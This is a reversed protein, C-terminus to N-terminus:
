QKTKQLVSSVSMVRLTWESALSMMSSNLSNQPIKRHFCFVFFFVHIENFSWASPPRLLKKNTLLDSTVTVLVFSSHPLMDESKMLQISFSFRPMDIKRGNAKKWILITVSKITLLLSSKTTFVRVCVIRFPLDESSPVQGFYGAAVHKPHSCLFAWWSSTHLHRFCFSPWFYLCYHFVFNNHM